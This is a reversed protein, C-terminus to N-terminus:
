AAIKEAWRMRTSRNDSNWFILDTILRAYDIQENTRLENRCLPIFRLFQSVFMGTSDYDSSLLSSVRRRMSDSSKGKYIRSLLTEFSVRVNKETNSNRETKFFICTVLYYVDDYKKPIDIGDKIELYALYARLNQQMDTGTARKLTYIGSRNNYLSSKLNNVFRIENSNDYKKQEQM